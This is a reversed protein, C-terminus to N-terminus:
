SEKGLKIKVHLPMPLGTPPKDFDANQMAGSLAENKFPQKFIDLARVKGLEGDNNIWIELYFVSPLTESVAGRLAQVIVVKCNNAYDTVTQPTLEVEAFVSSLFAALFPM